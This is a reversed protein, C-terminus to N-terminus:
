RVSIISLLISDIYSNNATTYQTLLREQDVDSIGDEM